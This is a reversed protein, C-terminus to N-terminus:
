APPPVLGILKLVVAQAVMVALWHLADGMVSRPAQGRALGTVALVPLVFGIWIVVASAVAMVWPSAKDPALILAGALISALWFEALVAVLGLAPSASRGGLRLSLGGIALGAITAIVIPVLNIMIYIM